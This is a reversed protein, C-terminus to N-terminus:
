AIKIIPKPSKAYNGMLTHICLLLTLFWMPHEGKMAAEVVNYSIIVTFFLVDMRALDYSAILEKKIAKSWNYFILLLLTLGIFGLELYTEIYGNHSETPDWMYRDWLAELRPGLWFGGYGEGIM